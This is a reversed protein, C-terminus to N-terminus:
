GIPRRDSGGSENGNQVVRSENWGFEYMESAGVRLIAIAGFHSRKRFGAIPPIERSKAFIRVLRGGVRVAQFQANRGEWPENGGFECMESAGFRLIASAGFIRCKASDPSRRPIELNRSSGLRGVM